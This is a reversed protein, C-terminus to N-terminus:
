ARRSSTHEPISGALLAMTQPGARYPLRFGVIRTVLTVAAATLICMGMDLTM